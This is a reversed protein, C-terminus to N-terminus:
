EEQLPGHAIENIIISPVEEHTFSSRNLKPVVYESLRIMIDMAKAPDNEAVENLWTDLNEINAEILHQYAEKIDKTIKNPTGMERGGTKRGQAM